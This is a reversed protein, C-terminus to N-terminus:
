RLSFLSLWHLFENLPTLFTFALLPLTIEDPAFSFESTMSFASSLDSIKWDTAKEYRSLKGRLSVDYKGDNPLLYEWKGDIHKWGTVHYVHIKEANETTLQIAHRVTEKISREPELVCDAGWREILWIYPLFNSLKKTTIGSKTTVEKYLCGNIVKYPLPYQVPSTSSNSMQLEEKFNNQSYLVGVENFTPTTNM